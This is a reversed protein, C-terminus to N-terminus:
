AAAGKAKARQADKRQQWKDWLKRKDNMENGAHPAFITPLDISPWLKPPAFGKAEQKEAGPNARNRGVAVVQATPMREGITGGRIADPGQRQKTRVLQQKRPEDSDKKRSHADHATALRAMFKGIRFNKPRSM